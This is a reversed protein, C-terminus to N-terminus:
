AAIWDDGTAFEVRESGDYEHIKFVQGVDVWEIILRQGGRYFEDGYRNECWESTALQDVTGDEIMKVVEPDFLCERHDGNWSYWGSGFGPSYIVAVKGDRVVKGYRTSDTM